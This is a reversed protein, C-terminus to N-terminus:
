PTPASARELLALSAADLELSAAGLLEDLQEVSTASAIPAAITPQAMIWALSVRAPTSAKAAAVEDLAGLIRAGRDSEFYRKLGSARPRGEIDALKRYKGSLFGRALGFFPLVALNHERAIPQLESEFGARDYLNYEPQLTAYSPLDLARSAALSAALREPGYQSAGIARVKGARVLEALAGLTEEVPTLPDDIHTQYLDIRDTKLRQLSEDVSQLIHERRLGKAGRVEMGVKTAITVRNRAGSRELWRGIIAESEGGSHGPVWASYLDATDVLDFGSGVFRDLLQFSTREDATWGFVNGGLALPAVALASAGLPRKRM